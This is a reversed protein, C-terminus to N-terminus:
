NTPLIMSEEDSMPWLTGGLAPIDALRKVSSVDIGKPLMFTSAHGMVKNIGQRSLKYVASHPDYMILIQFTDTTIHFPKSIQIDTNLLPDTTPDLVQCAMYFYHTNQYQMLRATNMNAVCSVDHLGWSVITPSVRAKSAADQREAEVRTAREQTAVASLWKRDAVAFASLLLATVVCIGCVALM